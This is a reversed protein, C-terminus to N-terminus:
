EIEPIDEYIATELFHRYLDMAEENQFVPFHGDDPFQVLGATCASGDFSEINGEAPREADELDLLVQAEMGQYTPSLTPTRAAAALAEASEPPTYEDELGETHLISVPKASWPPAVHNWYPAYNLPDTMEISMQLLGVLPHYTTSRM